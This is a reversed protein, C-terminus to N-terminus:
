TTTAFQYWIPYPQQTRPRDVIRGIAYFRFLYLFLYRVNWWGALNTSSNTYRRHTYKAWMWLHIGSQSSAFAFHIAFRAILGSGANRNFRHYLNMYFGDTEHTPQSTHAWSAFKLSGNHVIHWEQEVESDPTWFPRLISGDELTWLSRSLRDWHFIFRKDDIEDCSSCNTLAYMESTLTTGSSMINLDCLNITSLPGSGALPRHCTRVSPKTRKAESCNFFVSLHSAM